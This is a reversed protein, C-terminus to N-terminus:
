FASGLTFQFAKLQDTPKANLPEALSFRLIGVPAIWILAVGASYRVEGMDLKDDKAWIYGGDIFTSLRLEKSKDSFPNPLVLELSTLLRRNGGLPDGNSDRTTAPNGLSNTDYGRVSQSGGAFYREFPPLDTTNGYATGYDLGLTYALTYDEALPYYQHYQLGLKYFELDSGPAAAELRVNTLAGASPFIAKNRTDYSWVSTLKYLNYKPDGNNNVDIFGTSGNYIQTATTASTVIETQEVGVGFNLRTIESTPIGYSLSVAKTNTVYNSISAQAADIKRSLISFNQSVGDNTFYPDLISFGYTRTVSSNDANISVRKGGGMFNDQALSFNIIAGQVDSYGIGFTLSGTSREKVNMNLDVQDVTGPVAPTEVSVDDFFGTRNLRERSTAVKKTSLWDSEYQRLERRIVADRTKKNGTINIRRVYVRRGPDVFVTLAVTKSDDDIQPAINVNAFPYGLEALRDSLNKRTATTDKRSFLEGKHITILKQLEDGKIITDGLVKVERVTYVDGETINITVYVDQKDPTLSVQSSDISFKIYGRDMYYSRLTELDGALVQRSYNERGGFVGIDPLTMEHLLTKSSFAKNGIINVQYVKAEEGEAISITVAVRNRELPKATTTVKVGYKGLSYYQRKLEQNVTDLMSQDFVRGESLGMDKLASKLQDTPIKDNGKIHIEAIAPREAVFVVLVDGERELRVDKFFGTKYLAHIAQSTDSDSIEDGVKIPLYNFVTGVSIRQLGELRIDKVKFPEFAYAHSAYLISAIISALKKM